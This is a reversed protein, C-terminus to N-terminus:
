TIKIKDKKLIKTVILSV